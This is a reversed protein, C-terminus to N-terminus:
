SYHKGSGNLLDFAVAVTSLTNLESGESFNCQSFAINIFATMSSYIYLVHHTAPNMKGLQTRFSRSARDDEGVLDTFGIQAHGDRHMSGLTVRNVM